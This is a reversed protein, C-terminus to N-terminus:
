PLDWRWRASCFWVSLQWWIYGSRFFLFHCVSRNVHSTNFSVNRFSFFGSQYEILEKCLHYHFPNSLLCDEIRALRREGHQAINFAPLPSSRGHELRLQFATEQLRKLKKEERKCQQLRSRRVAKSMHNEECLKRAAEYIKMQLALEADM